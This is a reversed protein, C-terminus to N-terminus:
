INKDDTLAAVPVVQTVRRSTTSEGGLAARFKIVADDSHLDFTDVVNFRSRIVSEFSLTFADISTVGLDSMACVFDTHRRGERYKPVKTPMRLLAMKWDVFKYLFSTHHVFSKGSIAQANGGIKVLSSDARHVVYDNERVDFDIGFPAFVDAYIFDKSWQM